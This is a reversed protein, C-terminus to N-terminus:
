RVQNTAADEEVSPVNRLADVANGGSATTMGKVSYSNREPALIVNDREATVVQESLTVTSPQMTVTGLTAPTQLTVVIGSRIVPAFGIARIRVAYTGPKLGDVVFSGDPRPLTGGAFSTDTGRRVTISANPIAQGAPGVVRGHIEATPTTQLKPAPAQSEAVGVSTSLLAVVSLLIRLSM